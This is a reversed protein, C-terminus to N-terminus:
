SIKGLSVKVHQSCPTPDFCQVEVLDFKPTSNEYTFALTGNVRVSVGKKWGWCATLPPTLSGEQSGGTM